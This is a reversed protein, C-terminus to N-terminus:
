GVPRKAAPTNKTGGKARAKTPSKATTHASMPQGRQPASVGHQQATNARGRRAEAVSRRLAEILELAPQGETRGTKTERGAAKAALLEDVASRYTDVLAEPAPGGSLTRIYSEAMTMEADGVSVGHGLFDFSPRRVEDPWLMTQLVLVGDLPWLVALRERRRLTIKTIACRATRALADRLLVYPKVDGAPECYYSRALAVRDIDEAPQFGLVDITKGTTAQLAELDEDTLVVLEGDPLEAAKAIHEYAVEHDGSECVRRYRIRGGDAAHVQRFALEKEQTASVLRVPISVLGFSISGKWVTQVAVGRSLTSLARM